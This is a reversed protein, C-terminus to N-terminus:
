IEEGQQSILRGGFGVIVRLCYRDYARTFVTYPHSLDQLSILLMSIIGVMNRLSSRLNSIDFSRRIDANAAAAAAAAADPTQKTRRGSYDYLNYKARIEAVM